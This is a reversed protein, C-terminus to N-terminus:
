LKLVNSLASFTWILSNSDHGKLEKMIRVAKRALMEAEEIDACELGNAKILKHTALALSCAARDAECCEPDLHPGTLSGYCVRAFREADYYDGTFLFSSILRDGAALVLPHEPDYMESVCIYAEERVAKEETLKDMDMMEYPDGQCSLTGYARQTKMKGEKLRKANLLSQECYHQAKNGDKLVKYSISLNREIKSVKSYLDEIKEETLVDIRKTDTLAIQFIWSELIALAKLYYPMAKTLRDNEKGGYDNFGIKVGLLNYTNFLTEIEVDWVNISDGDDREYIEKGVIGKGFQHEAFDAARELLKICKSGGKTVIKEEGEDLVKDFLL